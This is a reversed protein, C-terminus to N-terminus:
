YQDIHTNNKPNDMQLSLPFFSVLVLHGSIGKCVPDEKAHFLFYLNASNRFKDLLPIIPLLPM